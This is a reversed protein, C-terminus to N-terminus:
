RNRVKITATREDTRGDSSTMKCSLNYDTNATGGSLWITTYGDTEVQSVKTIGAPITWVASVITESSALWNNWDFGYDLVADPDKLCTPYAM